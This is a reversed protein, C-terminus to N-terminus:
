NFHDPVTKQTIHITPEGTHNFKLSNNILNQFLLHMQGPVADIMPLDAINILANREKITIELDDLIRSLIKNLSVQTSTVNKNSLKSLTLVDEILVKMRNSSMIIKDLYNLEDHDLRSRIRTHLLNGFTEIKRLPEKLDHSAVSAFQLLDMNSK